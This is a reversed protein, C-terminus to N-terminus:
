NNVGWLISTGPTNCQWNLGIWHPRRFIELAFFLIFYWALQVHFKIMEPGFAQKKAIDMYQTLLCHLYEELLAITACNWVTEMCDNFSHGFLQWICWAWTFSWNTMQLIGSHNSPWQLFFDCHKANFVVVEFHHWQM